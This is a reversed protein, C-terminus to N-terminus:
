FAYTLMVRNYVFSHGKNFGAGNGLYGNYAGLGNSVEVRDRISLGKLPGQFFYTADLYADNSKGQYYTHYEAFALMLLIQKNLLNQTWKVKWGTGPGLEVLGRIMSTTFLPDTAYGVTYPSVIAGGGVAYNHAYIENYSLALQGNGIISNMADYNVGIQAGWAVNNVSTAAIPSNNIKTGALLTNNGYERNYQAAVFPDIGAGTKLTYSGDVYVQKAFQYYDYYWAQGKFGMASGSAGFALIGNSAFRASAAPSLAAAGGYMTDGFTTPQYYLNDRYYDNSTRSKWRFIRMGYFHLDCYPSVEAYVGQYTAPLIRSDSTNVWPTNLTQDGARILLIDPKEYQIYAQGLANISSRTGMLTADLKNPNSSNAGLSNATYFSAGVGFGGLFPATKANFIGGISFANQNFTNPGTAGYDRSFYYSRLQGDVKSQMLFDKLTEGQAATSLGCLAAFVGLAIRSKSMM